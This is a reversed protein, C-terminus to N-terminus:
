RFSMIMSSWRQLRDSTTKNLDRDPSLIFILNIHDCFLHFPDERKLFHELKELAKVIPFGEKEVTSWRLQSGTFNGSLFTLPIHNSVHVQTLAISWSLDSADTMLQLVFDKKPYSLLTCSAIAAQCEKFSIEEEETFQLPIKM